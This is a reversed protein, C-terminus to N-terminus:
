FNSSMVKIGTFFGKFWQHNVPKSVIICGEPLGGKKQIDNDTLATLVLISMSKFKPDQRITRLLEFGDLGPMGLDTILVDPNFNSIEILAEMGSALAKYEIPSISNEFFQILMKRTLDDDEVLLARFNVEELPEQHPVRKKKKYELLSAISIRRHGGETKWAHLEKDEVLKHITAISLGLSKSAYLTGCYEQISEKITTQSTHYKRTM